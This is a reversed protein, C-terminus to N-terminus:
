TCRTPCMHLMHPVHAVHPAISFALLGDPRSVRALEAWTDTGPWVDWPCSAQNLGVQYPPDTVIADVTGTDISALIDINNGHHLDIM